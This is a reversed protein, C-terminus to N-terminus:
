TDKADPDPELAEGVRELASYIQDISLIPDGPSQHFTTSEVLYGAQNAPNSASHSRAERTDQRHPVFNVM